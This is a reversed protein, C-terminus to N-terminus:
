RYLSKLKRERLLLEQLFDNEAKTRDLKNSLREIESEYEDLLREYAKREGEFVVKQKLFEDAQKLFKNEYEDSATAYGEITGDYKGVKYIASTLPNDETFDEKTTRKIGEIVSGEEIMNKVTDITRGFGTSRWVFRKIGM